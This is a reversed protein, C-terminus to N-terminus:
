GGLGTSPNQPSKFLELTSIEFGRLDRAIEPESLGFRAQVKAIENM